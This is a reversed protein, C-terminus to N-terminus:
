TNGSTDVGSRTVASSVPVEVVSLMVDAVARVNVPEAATPEVTCNYTSPTAEPLVHVAFEVVPTQDHSVPSKVSPSLSIVATEVVTNVSEVTVESDASIVTVTSAVAGVTEIAALADVNFDPSVEVNVSVKDSAAVSKTTPSMVTLPPVNDDNAPEPVDYVTTNVGVAFVGLPVPETDTASPVNVSAAEFLLVALEAVVIV